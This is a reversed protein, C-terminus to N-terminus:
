IGPDVNAQLRLARIENVLLVLAEEDKKFKDHLKSLKTLKRNIAAIAKEGRMQSKLAETEVYMTFAALRRLSIADLFQTMREDSWETISEPQIFTPITSRDPSADSMSM